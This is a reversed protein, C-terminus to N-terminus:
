WEVACKTVYLVDFAEIDLQNPKEQFAFGDGAAFNQM